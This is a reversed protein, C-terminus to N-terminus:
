KNSKKTAKKGGEDFSSMMIIGKEHLVFMPATRSLTVWRSPLALIEDTTKNSLGGYNACYRKIHYTSGTKPFVTVSTAENLLVRTAKYNMLQHSTACVTIRNHRGIELTQDRINQLLSRVPASAVVDIDDFVCCSDALQDMNMFALSEDIPVRNINPLDDFAKDSSVCSFINIDNDPYLKLYNILYRRVYTSKGSGSPGAIYLVDREMNINPVPTMFGEHISLQNFLKDKYKKIVTEDLDTPSIKKTSKTKKYIKDQNLVNFIDDDSSLESDSIDIDSVPERSYKVKKDSKNRSNHKIEKKKTFDGLSKGGEKKIAKPHNDLSVLIIGYDQNGVVKAVPIGTKTSFM